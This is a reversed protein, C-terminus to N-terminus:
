KKSKLKKYWEWKFLGWLISFRRRAYVGSDQTDTKKKEEGSKPKRERVSNQEYRYEICIRAHIPEITKYNSVYKTKSKRDFIGMAVADYLITFSCNYQRCIMNSINGDIEEGNRIRENLDKLASLAKDITGQRINFQKGQQKM